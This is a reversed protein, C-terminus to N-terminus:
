SADKPRYVEQFHNAPCMFPFFKQISNDERVLIYQMVKREKDILLERNKLIEIARKPVNISNLSDPNNFSPTIIKIRYTEAVRNDIISLSQVSMWNYLGVTRYVFGINLIEEIALNYKLIEKKHVAYHGSDDLFSMIPIRNNRDHFYRACQYIKLGIDFSMWTFSCSNYSICISNGQQFNSLLDLEQYKENILHYDLDSITSYMSTFSQSNVQKLEYLEQIRGKLYATTVEKGAEKVIEDFKLSALDTAGLGRWMEKETINHLRISYQHFNHIMHDFNRTAFTPLYHKLKIGEPSIKPPLRNMGVTTARRARGSETGKPDIYLCYYGAKQLFFWILKMLQSKGDGSGGIILGNFPNRETTQKSIPDFYIYVIEEEPIEEQYEYYPRKTGLPIKCEKIYINSEEKDLSQLYKWTLPFLTTM